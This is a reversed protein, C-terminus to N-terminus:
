TWFTQVKPPVTGPLAEIMFDPRFHLFFPMSYRAKSARDPTPNVVRHSTSRLQADIAVFGQDSVALAGMGELWQTVVDDIILKAIYLTSLSADEAPGRGFANVVEISNIGDTTLAWWLADPPLLGSSSEAFGACSM